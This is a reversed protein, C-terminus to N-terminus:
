KWFFIKKKNNEDELKMKWILEWCRETFKEPPLKGDLVDIISSFVPSNINHQKIISDVIKYVKFGEVTKKNNKIAKEFGYKYVERGFTFNRSKDSTCTLFIDGIGCFSIMTKKNAGMHKAIDQMEEIGMTLMASITNISNHNEEAIGVAIALLNKLSSFVQLGVEDNCPIIKFVDSNFIECVSKVANFNKGSANIITPKQEFVDIAFSPGCLTVLKGSYNKLESKITKSLIDNTNSDLGKIVNVFIVNAKKSVVEKVKSLVEKLADSPVAFIIYKADGIATNLNITASLSSAFKSEGFYKKNYGSNIDNVENNDIGWLFVTNGNLSLRLGLATAWAGTGLICIRNNIM